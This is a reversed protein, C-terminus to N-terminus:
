NPAAACSSGRHNAILSTKDPIKDIYKLEVFVDCVTVSLLEFSKWLKKKKVRYSYFQLYM